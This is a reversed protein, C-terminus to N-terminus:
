NSRATDQNSATRNGADAADTVLRDVLREPDAEVILLDRARENVFGNGVAHNIFEILHEFYNNVNLLAVFADSLGAAFPRAEM